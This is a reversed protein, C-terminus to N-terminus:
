ATEERNEQPKSVNTVNTPSVDPVQVYAVFGLAVIVISHPHITDMFLKRALSSHHIDGFNRFRQPPDALTIVQLIWSFRREEFDISHVRFAGGESGHFEGIVYGPRIKMKVSTVKTPEFVRQYEIESLRSESRFVFM